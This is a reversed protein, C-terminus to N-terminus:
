MMDLFKVRGRSVLVVGQLSTKVPTRPRGSTLRVGRTVVPRLGFLCVTRDFTRAARVLGIVVM